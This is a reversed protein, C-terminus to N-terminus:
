TASPHRSRRHAARTEADFGPHQRAAAPPLAYRVDMARTLTGLQQGSLM